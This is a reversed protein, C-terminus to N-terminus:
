DEMGEWQSIMDTISGFMELRGGVVTPTKDMSIVCEPSGHSQHVKEMDTNCGRRQEGGGGRVNFGARSEMDYTTRDLTYQTCVTGLLPTHLATMISATHLKSSPLPTHAELGTVDMCVNAEM